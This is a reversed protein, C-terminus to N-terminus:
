ARDNVPRLGILLHHLLHHLIHEVDTVPLQRLRFGIPEGVNCNVVHAPKHLSFRYVESFRTIDMGIGSFIIEQLRRSSRSEEQGPCTSVSLGGIWWSFLADSTKRKNNSWLASGSGPNM